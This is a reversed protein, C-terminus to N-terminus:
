ARIILAFFTITNDIFICKRWSRPPNSQTPTGKMCMERKKHTVADILLPLYLPVASLYQQYIYRRMQM